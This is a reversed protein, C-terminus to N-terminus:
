ALGSELVLMFVALRLVAVALASAVLKIVKHMHEKQEGGRM